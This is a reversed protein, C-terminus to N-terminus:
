RILRKLVPDKKLNFDVMWDGFVKDMTDPKFEEMGNGPLFTIEGFYIKKNISYLDIRSYDFNSSLKKAIDIIKELNGPKEILTPSKPYKVSVDILEWNETYYSRTHSSFRDSDVQIIMQNRGSTGFCHIKYDKPINGEEDTILNEIVIYPKSLEYQAEGTFNISYNCKLWAGILRRLTNEDENNKDRVIYNWGSGHAGKMIFSSPLNKLSFKREDSIVEIMPILHDHGLTSSIYERVKYKCTYRSLKLLLERQYLKRYVLMESYTSPKKLNPYHGHNKRFEKLTKYWIKFLSRSKKGKKELHTIQEELNRM